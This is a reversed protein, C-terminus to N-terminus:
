LPLTQRSIAGFSFLSLLLTLLWWSMMLFADQLSAVQMSTAPLRLVLFDKM